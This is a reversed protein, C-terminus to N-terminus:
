WLQGGSLITYLIPGIGWVLVVAGWLIKQALNLDERGALNIWCLVVAVPHLVIAIVIEILLKM